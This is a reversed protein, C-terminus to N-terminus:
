RILVEPSNQLLGSLYKGILYQELIEQSFRVSDPSAQAFTALNVMQSSLRELNSEELTEPLAMRAWEQVINKHIEWPYEDNLYLGITM